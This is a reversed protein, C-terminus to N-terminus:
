KPPNTVKPAPTPTIVPNVVVTSVPPNTITTSTTAKAAEQKMYVDERTYKVQKDDKGIMETEGNANLMVVRKRDPSVYRNMHNGIPKATQVDTFGCNPCKDFM